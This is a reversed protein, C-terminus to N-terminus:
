WDPGLGPDVNNNSPNYNPAGSVYFGVDFYPSTNWWTSMQIITGVQNKHFGIHKSVGLQYAVSISPCGLSLVLTLAGLLLPSSWRHRPIDRERSAM